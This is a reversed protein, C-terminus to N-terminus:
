SGASCSYINNCFGVSCSHSGQVRYTYVQFPFTIMFSHHVNWFKLSLVTPRSFTLTGSILTQNKPEWTLMLWVITVRCSSLEVPTLSVDPTANTLFYFEFNFAIRIFRLITGSLITVSCYIRLFIWATRDRLQFCPNENFSVLVCGM